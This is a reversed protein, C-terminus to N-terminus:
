GHADFDEIRHIDRHFHIAVIDPPLPDGRSIWTVVTRVARPGFGVPGTGPRDSAIWERFLIGSGIAFTPRDRVIIATQVGDWIRRFIDESTKIHHEMGPGRNGARAEQDRALREGTRTADVIPRGRGDRTTHLYGRAADVTFKLVDGDEFYAMWTSCDALPRVYCPTGAVISGPTALRNCRKIGAAKMAKPDDGPIPAITRAVYFPNM